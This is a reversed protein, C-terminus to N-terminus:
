GPSFSVYAVLGNPTVKAIVPSTGFPFQITKEIRM